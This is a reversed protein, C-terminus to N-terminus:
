PCTIDGRQAVGYRGYEGVINGNADVTVSGFYEPYLVGMLYDILSDREGMQTYYLGDSGSVRRQDIEVIGIGLDIIASMTANLMKAQISGDADEIKTLIDAYYAPNDRYKASNRVAAMIMAIDTEDLTSSAATIQVKTLM